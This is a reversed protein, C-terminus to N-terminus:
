RKVKVQVQRALNGSKAKFTIKKGAKRTITAKVTRRVTNGPAIRLTLKSTVKAAKSPSPLLRVKATGTATGSNTVSVTLKVKAGRRVKSPGAKLRLATFRPQPPKPTSRVYTAGQRQSLVTYTVATSGSPLIVSTIPDSAWPQNNFALLPGWLNEAPLLFAGDGADRLVGAVAVEDDDRNPAFIRQEWVAVAQGSPSVALSPDLPRGLDLPDPSSLLEPDGFSTEGTQVAAFLSFIRGEDLSDDGTWLVTLRGSGDFALGGNGVAYETEPNVRVPPLFGTSNAPRIQVGYGQIESEDEFGEVWSVAASGDSAIAARPDDFAEEGTGGSTLQEEPGFQVTSSPRSTTYVQGDLDDVWTALASGGPGVALDPLAYVESTALEEPTGFTASGATRTAVESFYEGADQDYALWIATTSGDPGAVLELEDLRASPRLDGSIVEPGEFEAEGAPRTITEVDREFFFTDGSMWGLTITGDPTIVGSFRRAAPADITQVTESPGFTETGAPRESVRVESGDVTRYLTAVTLSGDPGALPISDQLGQGLDLDFATGPVEVSSPNWTWDARAATAGGILLAPILVLGFVLAVVRTDFMKKRHSM